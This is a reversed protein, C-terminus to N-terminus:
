RATLERYRRAEERYRTMGASAVEALRLFGEAITDNMTMLPDRVPDSWLWRATVMSWLTNEVVSGLVTESRGGMLGDHRDTALELPTRDSDSPASTVTNFEAIWSEANLEHLRDGLHRVAPRVDGLALDHYAADLNLRHTLCYDRLMTHVPKWGDGAVALEHLLLRRLWPHLGVRHPRGDQVLWMRSVLEEYLATGVGGGGRTIGSRMATDLDRAASWRVLNARMRDPLGAFLHGAQQEFADLVRRFDGERAQRGPQPTPIAAAVARVSWPHGHTLRHVFRRREGLSRDLETVALDRLHVPYWWSAPDRQPGRSERWDLYSATDPEPMRNAPKRDTEWPFMWADALGTLAPQTRSAAVVLVPDAAGGGSRTARIDAVDNLFDAAGGADCNDLLIACNFGRRRGYSDAIDALLAETLMRSARAREARGASHQSWNLTVLTRLGSHQPHDFESRYWGLGRRYLQEVAQRSSAARGVLRKILDPPLSPLHLAQAVDLVIGGAADARDRLNAARRLAEALADQAASLDDPLRDQAAALRGLTVRPFNLRGFKRWPHGHLDDALDCVLRWASEPPRRACDHFVYPVAVSDACSDTLYRLLVTKGTGRPGCLVIIPLERPEDGTRRMCHDFLEGTVRSRGALTVRGTM